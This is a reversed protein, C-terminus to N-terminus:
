FSYSLKSELFLSDAFLLKNQKKDSYNKAEFIKRDFSHGAFFDLKLSKSPIIEMGLGMKKEVFFTRYDIEERDHRFFNTVEQKFALYPQFWFARNYSLRLDHKWPLLSIYRFSFDQYKRMLMIFPFGLITLKDRSADKIYFFGPLPINNLFSRNNSYNAVLFWKESVKQIYNASFTDDDSNRFPKDSATGYTINAFWFRNGSLNKRMGLALQYQYYDRLIGKHDLDLHQYNGGIIYDLKETKVTHGFRLTSNLVKTSSDQNKLNHQPALSQEWALQSPAAVPSLLFSMDQALVNFSSIFFIIWIMLKTNLERIDKDM